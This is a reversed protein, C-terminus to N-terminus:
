QNIFTAFSVVGNSPSAIVNVTGTGLGGGAPLVFQIREASIVTVNSVTINVPPGITVATVANTPFGLGSVIVSAPLARNRSSPMIETVVYNRLGAQVQKILLSDASNVFGDQNVDGSLFGTAQFVTDNTTRLGTLVDNILQLDNSTVNGSGDVDGPPYYAATVCAPKTNTSVGSPGSVILSVTNTGPMEYTYAVTVNTTSLVGGDGFNWLRNTITGTSTDTFTVTLKATGNTPSAVFSAVPTLAGTGNVANTSNGATTAFIVNANYGVAAPPSFRVVVNTSAGGALSFPSGGSIGFPSAVSASGSLAAGGTNSVTFSVQGTAGVAIAGFSYSAPSVAFSLTAAAQNVTFTQGAVTFTGTRTSTSTNADVTYSVTGNGTGSSSTHLWGVNATATWACGATATVTFSAGGGAANFNNTSVPSLTYSCAAAAQNVTFTQGAVTFTGTRTSTSTNADVTYSVTGNGTGSSSTHLWGVNATATWACGATATVTFSAGGGAANFNNTSVPSLTYSCTAAAQNVTFTQGGVTITGTRSTASTGVPTSMDSQIEAASLARNYIRVEDIRGAFYQGYLADGGITLPGTSTSIPGTQPQSAVAVGNVYLTMTTGDYTGALHTWTNLGLTSTGRLPSFAYKGGFAPAGTDSSGELYYIDDTGKYIVDRWGGVAAPYVWAELTMATTLDLSASDNITVLSNSGNFVLAGGYRGANTWTASTITGANSNGSSDGVTSGSNEDFTYAAVLGPPAGTTGGTMADVTYGVTGNGTGTSTTHLWSVNATATWSCTTGVNVSFTGAGAAASVSTNAPSITYNCAVGDQNVTFTQGGVTITGSRASAVSNSDVTYSVTGSGAGSSTTHLWSVNASATWTCGALTTVIFSASGGNASASSASPSIGFTAAINSYDSSGADNYAKVRYYFTGCTVTTDLYSTVNSSVTAIQAWPGSTTAAREVVFGNENTANDTWSLTVAFLSQGAALWGALVVIRWFSV